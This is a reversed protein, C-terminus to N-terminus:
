STRDEALDGTNADTVYELTKELECTAVQKWDQVWSLASTERTCFSCQSLAAKGM